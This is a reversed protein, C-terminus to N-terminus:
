LPKRFRRIGGDAFEIRQQRLLKGIAQKFAKKSTGFKERIVNPDTKDGYPLTSDGAAAVAALETRAAAAASSVAAVACRTVAEDGPAPKEAGPPNTSGKPLM